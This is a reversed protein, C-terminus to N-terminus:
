TAPMTATPSPSIARSRCSPIGLFERLLLEEALDNRGAEGVWGGHCASLIFASVPTDEEVGDPCAVQYEATEPPLCPVDRYLLLDAMAAADGAEHIALFEDVEPIGTRTGEPHAAPTATPDPIVTAAPM